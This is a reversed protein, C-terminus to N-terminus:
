TAAPWSTFPGPSAAAPAPAWSDGSGSHVTGTYVVQAPPMRDLEARVEALAQDNAQQEARLKPDALRALLAQREEKLRALEGSMFPGSSNAIGDVLNKKSWRPLAEISDLATM